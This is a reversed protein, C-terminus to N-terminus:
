AAPSSTDVFSKCCAWSCVCVLVSIEGFNREVIPNRSVLVPVTVVSSRQSVADPIPLLSVKTTSFSCSKSSERPPRMTISKTSPSLVRQSLKVSPWLRPPQVVVVSVFESTSTRSATPVSSSFPNGSRLAFPLQNSSSFPSETLKSSALVPPLTLLLPPTRREASANFKSQKKKM